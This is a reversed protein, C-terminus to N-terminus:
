ATVACPGPGVVGPCSGPVAWSALDACKKFGPYFGSPHTIQDVFAEHTGLAGAPYPQSLSLAPSAPALPRSVPPSGSGLAPTPPHLLRKEKEKKEVKAKTSLNAPLM